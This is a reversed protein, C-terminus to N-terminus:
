TDTSAQKGGAVGSLVDETSAFFILDATNATLNLQFLLTMTPIPNSVQSLNYNLGFYLKVADVSDCSDLFFQPDREMSDIVSNIDKHKM